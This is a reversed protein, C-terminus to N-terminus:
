KGVVYVENGVKHALMFSRGVFYYIVRGKSELCKRITNIAYQVHSAEINLNTNGLQSAHTHRKPTATFHNLATSIYLSFPWKPAYKSKHYGMFGKEPLKQNMTPTRVVLVHVLCQLREKTAMHQVLHLYGKDIM